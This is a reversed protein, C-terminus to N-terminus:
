KFFWKKVDMVVALFGLLGAFIAIWAGPAPYSFATINMLHEMGIFPPQYSMGSIKIPAYPNLHHGYNYEWRYFDVLGAGGLFVLLGFWITDFLRSGVFSATLGLIIMFGLIYPIIKLEPITDPKIPAMGIYHNLININQIDTPKGGTIKNVWIHIELGEPYQPATLLINWMPFFYVAALLLSSAFLLKKSMVDSDM